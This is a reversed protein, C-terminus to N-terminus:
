LAVVAYSLPILSLCEHEVICDPECVFFSLIYYFKM